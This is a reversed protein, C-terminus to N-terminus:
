PVEPRVFARAIGAAGRDGVTRRRWAGVLGVVAAIVTARATTTPQAAAAPTAVLADMWAEVPPRALAGALDFLALDGIGAARVIAVDDALEAPDAYTREDGLAGRGVAGLAVAAREGFRRATARAGTWLLARADARRLVGRAYGRALTTYLMTSVRDLALADVPTGLLRQWASTGPADAAVLPMAAAWTGLGHARALALVSGLERAAPGLAAPMHLLGRVDGHLLRRLRSLAPELDLCLEDPLAGARACRDVLARVFVAFEAANRANAWRGRENEIMPWMAVGVGADRCRGVLAPLERAQWPRVGAVLQVGRERLAPLASVIADHALDEAFVRARLV